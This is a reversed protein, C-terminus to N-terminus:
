GLKLRLGGRFQRPPGLNTRPTKGTVVRIGTLNEGALFVEVARSVSVSGVADLTTYGPLRLSNLDDEYQASGYRGVVALSAAGFTGVMQFSAQHRPVQPVRKGVLAASESSSTVRSDVFLYGASFRLRASLRGELDVEVGRARTEGINQRQRTILAPTTELTRNGISDDIESWFLTARAFVAGGFSSLLAGAEAGFLREPGLEDNALTLTDGARFNRYLENLTPSRFSRYVSATLSLNSSAAYVLAARPSWFTASRDDLETRPSPAARRGQLRFADFNRWADFRLGVSVSARPGAAIRDRVFLAGTAQKGGADSVAAGDAGVIENSAGSVIRGEFGALLGHSGRTTEWQGSAGGAESPIDQSRTLIEASRDASVASFTQHYRERMGYIRVSYAGSGSAGDAGAALQWLNTDNVQLPTGNGREEDFYSGRLYGRAARGSREVRADAAVHRSDAPVDVAGAEEPPLLVYGDTRFAEASLRATWPGTGGAAFLQADATDASGYSAEAALATTSSERPVMAIVGSLAPAGYRDSSGGRLVEVRDLAAGVVRGWSVWGGFPDNLPVGDDLVLARSAGSGGVGRLSAGQTTPNATRSDSRRFLTFGPVQRLKADIATTASAELEESSLVIVSAPEERIRTPVRAATITLSDAFRLPRLEIRLPDEGNWVLFREAYGDAEAVLRVPPAGDFTLEFRGHADATVSAELDPLLVRAGSIALEGPSVVVGRVRSTAGSPGVQGALPAIGGILFPVVALLGIM